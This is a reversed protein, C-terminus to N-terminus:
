RSPGSRVLAFLGAPIGGPEVAALPRRKPCHDRPALGGPMTKPVSCLTSRHPFSPLTFQRIVLPIQKMLNMRHVMGQFCAIFFQVVLASNTFPHNVELSEVSVVRVFRPEVLRRSEVAVPRLQPTILFHELFPFVVCLIPVVQRPL